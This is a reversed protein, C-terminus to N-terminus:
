RLKRAAGLRSAITALQNITFPRYPEGILTREPFRIVASFANPFGDAALDISCSHAPM